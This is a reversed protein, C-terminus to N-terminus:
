KKLFIKDLRLFVDWYQEKTMKSWHIQFYRYQYIQIQCVIILLVIVGIFLKKNITKKIGTIAKALLIMFLPLYEVYVRSSFSGGYYWMYWSSFIYTIFIFFSFWSYFQFRSENWLFYSGILSIFLLPTYLFLGKRYSFLIDIFHPSLFDFGQNQYSYVLFNGTSIKYIILQISIMGFFGLLGLILHKKEYIM